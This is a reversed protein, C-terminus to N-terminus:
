LRRLCALPKDFAVVVSEDRVVRGTSPERTITTEAFALSSTFALISASSALAKLM